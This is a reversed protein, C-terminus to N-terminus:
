NLGTCDLMVEQCHQVDQLSEPEVTRGQLPGDDQAATRGVVPESNSHHDTGNTDFTHCRRWRDDVSTPRATGLERPGRVRPGDVGHRRRPRADRPRGPRAASMAAGASPGREGASQRPFLM